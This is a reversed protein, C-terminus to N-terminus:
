HFTVIYISYYYILTQETSPQHRTDRTERRLHLTRLLRRLEELLLRQLQLSLRLPTIPESQGEDQYRLLIGGERRIEGALPGVREQHRQVVEQADEELAHM